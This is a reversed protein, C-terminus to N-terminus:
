SDVSFSILSRLAVMALRESWENDSIWFKPGVQMQVRQASHNWSM